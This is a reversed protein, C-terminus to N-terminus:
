RPTWMLGCRMKFHLCIHETKQPNQPDPTMGPWTPRGIPVRTPQSLNATGCNRRDQHLFPAGFPILIYYFDISVISFCLSSSFFLLELVTSKWNSSLCIPHSMDHGQGFRLLFRQLASLFWSFLCLDDVFFSPRM